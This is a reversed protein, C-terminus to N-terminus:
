SRFTRYVAPVLKYGAFVSMLVLVVFAAVFDGGSLDSIFLNYFTGIIAVLSIVAGFVIGIKNIM